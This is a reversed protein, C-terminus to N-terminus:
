YNDKSCLRDQKFNSWSSMYKQKTNPHYIKRWQKKWRKTLENLNNINSTISIFPNIDVNKNKM